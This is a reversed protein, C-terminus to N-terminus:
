MGNAQQLVTDKVQAQLGKHSSWKAFEESEFLRVHVYHAIDRNIEAIRVAHVQDRQPWNDIAASLAGHKRSTVLLHLSKHNDRHLNKLWDLADSPSACEDLADIVVAVENSLDLISALMESM